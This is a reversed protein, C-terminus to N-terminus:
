EDPNATNNVDGTKLGKFNAGTYNGQLNTILISEPPLPSNFPATPDSFSFFAPFFRWSSNNPFANFIGLIVKRIEVVDFTTVSNSRNADSAIIKWPSDFYELGLIHKSILM